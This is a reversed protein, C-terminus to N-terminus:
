RRPSTSTLNRADLVSLQIDYFPPLSLHTRAVSKPKAASMTIKPKVPPNTRDATFRLRPAFSQPLDIAPCPPARSRRSESLKEAGTKKWETRYKKRDLPQVKYQHQPD